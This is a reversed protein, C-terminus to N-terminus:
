NPLYVAGGISDRTAGTVSALTNVEGNFRLLGLFAFIIAEKFDILQISPVEVTANTNARIQDLLFSNHAGGGTFLARASRARDLEMGVQVAIHEVMTRMRDHLDIARTAILLKLEADFWERGLSRPPAQQYFPLANLRDLLHHDITGTRALDGNADYPLGAENALFNLAQNCTGVDYGKTSGKGVPFPRSPTHVSINSIGGLNIFVDHDPFLVREGLPVLPAGQGGLAVDKSRFDCVAPLGTIAAIRAGSGIQSTLGEDPKHFITHGHSAILDAPASRLLHVCAEGILTGLDRDLRVLDLASGDAAHLLRDHLENSFAITRADEVTFSWVNDNRTFVCCALDLGDLSSGSMAGIVRFPQQM